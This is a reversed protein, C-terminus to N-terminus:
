RYFFRSVVCHNVFLEFQKSLDKEEIGKESLFKKLHTEVIRHM